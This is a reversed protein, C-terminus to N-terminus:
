PLIGEQAFLTQLAQALAAGATEPAHKGPLGLAPEIRIGRQQAASVDIGSSSALELYLANKPLVAVAEAPLLLAPATNFIVRVNSLKSLETTACVRYGYASAWTRDADKRALVIVDAGLGRLRHALLKGIRGFGLVAVPTQWLTCPLCHMAIALAGEATAIAGAIALPEYLEYDHLPRAGVARRLADDIRGAFVHCTSPLKAIMHSISLSGGWLPTHILDGRGWPLPLVAAACDALLADDEATNDIGRLTVRYGAAKLLHACALQRRDGGLLAILPPSM